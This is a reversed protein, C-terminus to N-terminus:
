SLVRQVYAILLPLLGLVKHRLGMQVLGALREMSTCIRTVCVIESRYLELVKHRLGMQVLGALREMSICIRTVCVIESQYHGQSRHQTQPVSGALNELCSDMSALM